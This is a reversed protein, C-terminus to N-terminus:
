SKAITNKLIFEAHQLVFFVGRGGRLIGTSHVQLGWERM